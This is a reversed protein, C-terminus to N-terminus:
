FAQQKKDKEIGDPIFFSDKTLRSNNDLKIEYDQSYEINNVDTKDISEDTTKQNFDINLILNDDVENLNTQM